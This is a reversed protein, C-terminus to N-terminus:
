KEKAEEIEFHIFYDIKELYERKSHTKWVKHGNEALFLIFGDLNGQNKIKIKIEKM